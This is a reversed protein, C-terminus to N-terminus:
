IQSLPGKKRWYRWTTQCLTTTRLSKTPTMNCCVSHSPDNHCQTDQPRLGSSVLLSMKKGIKATLLNVLASIKSVQLPNGTPLEIESDGLDDNVKILEHFMQYNAGGGTFLVLKVTVRLREKNVKIIEMIQELLRLLFEKTLTVLKSTHKIPLKTGNIFFINFGAQDDLCEEKAAEYLKYKHFRAFDCAVYSAPTYKFNEGLKSHLWDHPKGVLGELWLKNILGFGDLFHHMWKAHLAQNFSIDITSDGIDVTAVVEKQTLGTTLNDISASISRRGYLADSPEAIIRTTVEGDWGLSKQSMCQKYIKVIREPWTAPVVLVIRLTQVSPYDKALAAIVAKMRTQMFWEWSSVLKMQTQSWLLHVSSLIPGTGAKGHIINSKPCETSYWRALIGSNLRSIPKGTCPPTALSAITSNGESAATPTETPLQSRNRNADSPYSARNQGSRTIRKNLGAEPLNSSVARKRTMTHNHQGFPFTPRYKHSITSRSCPAGLPKLSVRCNAYCGLSDLTVSLRPTLENPFLEFPHAKQTDSLDLAQYANALTALKQRKSPSNDNDLSTDAFSSKPPPFLLCLCIQFRDTIYLVILSLNGDDLDPEEDSTVLDDLDETTHAKSNPFMKPRAYPCEDILIGATAERRIWLSIKRQHPVM